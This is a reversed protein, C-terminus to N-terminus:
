FRRDRESLQVETDSWVALSDISLTFTPIIIPVVAIPSITVAVVPSISASVPTALHGDAFPAAVLDHNSALV